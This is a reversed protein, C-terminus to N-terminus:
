CPSAQPHKPCVRCDWILPLAQRKVGLLDTGQCVLQKLKAALCTLLLCLSYLDLNTLLIGGSRAVQLNCLCTKSSQHSCPVHPKIITPTSVDATQEAGALFAM